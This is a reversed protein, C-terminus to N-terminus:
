RAATRVQESWGRPLAAAPGPPCARAEGPQTVDRLAAKGPRPPAAMSPPNLSARLGHERGPVLAGVPTCAVWRWTAGRTTWRPASRSGFLELLCDANDQDSEMCAWLRLPAAAGGAARLRAGGGEPPSTPAPLAVGPSKRSHNVVRHNTPSNDTEM